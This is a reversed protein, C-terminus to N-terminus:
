RLPNQSFSDRFPIFDKYFLIPIVTKRIVSIGAIYRFYMIVSTQLFKLKEADWKRPSYSM